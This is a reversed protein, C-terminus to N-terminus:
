ESRSSLRPQRIQLFEMQARLSQTPEGSACCLPRECSTARCPRLRSSVPPREQFRSEDDTRQGEQTAPQNRAHEQRREHGRDVFTSGPALEAPLLETLQVALQNGVPLIVVASERRRQIVNKAFCLVQPVDFWAAAGINQIAHRIRRRHRRRTRNYPCGELTRVRFREIEHLVASNGIYRSPLLPARSGVSNGDRSAMLRVIFRQDLAAIADKIRLTAPTKGRVKKPNMGAAMRPCMARCRIAAESPRSLPRFSAIVERPM